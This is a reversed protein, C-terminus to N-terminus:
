RWSAMAVAFPALSIVRPTLMARRPPDEGTAEDVTEVLAGELPLRVEITGNRKNVILLTKAEPTM